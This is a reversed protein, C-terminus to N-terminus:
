LGRFVVGLVEEKKALNQNITEDIQGRNMTYIICKETQSIRHIRGYAQANTAPSWSKDNLISICAKTLTLGTAMAGLTGVIADLKGAQFRQCVADRVKDSMGGMVTEATWGSKRLREAIEAVPARHDSFIVVPGSGSVLMDDALSVTAPVKEMASRAKASSIHEGVKPEGDDYDDGKAGFEGSEFAAWEAQLAADIAPDGELDLNQFVLPPLDAIASLKNRFYVPKLWDRLEDENRIGIYERRVFGAVKKLEEHTFRRCFAHHSPYAKNFGRENLLDMAKMPVYIDPVRNKLMTGSMFLLRKPKFSKVYDLLTSARVTQPNAVYHAEDFVWMGAARFLKRAKPMMEYSMIVLRTGPKPLFRSHFLQAQIEPFFRECERLWNRKLYGPVVAVALEGSLRIAELGTIGKGCGRESGDYLARWGSMIREVSKKQHPRLVVNPM